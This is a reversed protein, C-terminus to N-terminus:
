LEGPSCMRTLGGRCHVTMARPIHGIPVQDPLEQIRAEQYRM